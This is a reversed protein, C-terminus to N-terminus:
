EKNRPLFLGAELIKWGTTDNTAIKLLDRQMGLLFLVQIYSSMAVGPSGKEILQLTSRSIGAQEAFKKEALMRRKRAFRINHGLIVLIKRAEPILSDKKNKM